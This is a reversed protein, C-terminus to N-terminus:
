RLKVSILQNLEVCSMLWIRRFKTFDPFEYIGVLGVRCIDEVGDLCKRDPLQPVEICGPDPQPEM